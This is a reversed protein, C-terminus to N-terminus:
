AKPVNEKTVVASAPPRWSSLEQWFYLQATAPLPLFSPLFSPFPTASISGPVQATSPPEQLAGLQDPCQKSRLKRFCVGRFLKRSAVPTDPIGLLQPARSWLLPWRCCPVQNPGSIAHPLIPLSTNPLLQSGWATFDSNKRVPPAQTEEKPIKVASSTSASSTYSGGSNWQSTLSLSCSEWIPHSRQSQDKFVFIVTSASKTLICLANRFKSLKIWYSHPKLQVYRSIYWGLCM